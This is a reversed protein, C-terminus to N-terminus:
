LVLTRNLLTQLQEPGHALRHLVRVTVCDDGTVKLRGVDQDLVIARDAQEIETNGFLQLAQVQLDVLGHSPQSHHRRGVRRGLLNTAITDSDTGVNIGKSDNKVLQQGTLKGEVQRTQGRRFGGGDNSLM